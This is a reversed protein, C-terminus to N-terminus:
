DRTYEELGLFVLANGGMILEKTSPRLPLAELAKKMRIAELRPDNTGFMIQHRLGRDVWTIPIDKTLVQDYFERASDFYLCATDAFVNGYKLMLM